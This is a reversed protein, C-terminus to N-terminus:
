ERVVTTKHIKRERPVRFDENPVRYLYIGGTGRRYYTYPGLIVPEFNGKDILEKHVEVLQPYNPAEDFRIYEANFDFRSSCWPITERYGCKPCVKVLM